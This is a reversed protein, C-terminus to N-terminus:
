DSPSTPAATLAPGGSSFGGATGKNINWSPASGTFCGTPTLSTPLNCSPGLDAPKGSGDAFLLRNAPVTLDIYMTLNAYFDSVDADLQNSVFGGIGWGPAAFCGLDNLLLAGAALDSVDNVYIQASGLAGDWSTLIHLWGSSTTYAGQTYLDVIASNSCNVFYVRLQNTATRMLGYMAGVGALFQQTGDGGNFHIWASLTGRPTDVVGSLALDDLYDNSAPAFRVASAHYTPSSADAPQGTSADAPLQGM